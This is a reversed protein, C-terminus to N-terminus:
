DDLVKDSEVKIDKGANKAIDDANDIVTYREELKANYLDIFGHIGDATIIMDFAGNNNTSVYLVDGGLFVENRGVFNKLSDYHRMMRERKGYFNEKSM